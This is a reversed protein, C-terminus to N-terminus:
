QHDRGARVRLEELRLETVGGDVDRQVSVAVEERIGKGIGSLREVTEHV